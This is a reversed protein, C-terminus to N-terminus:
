GRRRKKKINETMARGQAVATKRARREDVKSAPDYHIKKGYPEWRYFPGDADNGKKLPM